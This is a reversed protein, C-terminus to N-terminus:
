STSSDMDGGADDDQDDTGGDADDDEDDDTAGYLGREARLRLVALFNSLITHEEETSTNLHVLRVTTPDAGFHTANNVGQALIEDDSQEGNTFFMVDWGDPTRAVAYRPDFMHMWGNPMRDEM